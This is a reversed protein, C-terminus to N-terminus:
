NVEPVNLHRRRRRRAPRFLEQDLDLLDELFIELIPVVALFNSVFSLDLALFFKIVTSFIATKNYTKIFLFRKRYIQFSIRQIM